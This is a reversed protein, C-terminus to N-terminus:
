VILSWSFLAITTKLAHSVTAAPEEWFPKDTLPQNLWPSQSRPSTVDRLLPRLARPSPSSPRSSSPTNTASSQTIPPEGSRIPLKKKAVTTGNSGPIPTRNTMTPTTTTTTTTTPTAPKPSPSNWDATVDWGLVTDRHWPASPRDHGPMVNVTSSIVTRTITTKPPVKDSTAQTAAKPRGADSTSSSAKRREHSKKKKASKISTSKLRQELIVKEDVPKYNRGKRHLGGTGLGNPGIKANPDILSSWDATSTDNKQDGWAGAIPGYDEEEDSSSSSSSSSAGNDGM